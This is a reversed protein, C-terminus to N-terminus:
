AEDVITEAAEQLARRRRDYDARLAAVQVRLDHVSTQNRLQAAVAHLIALGVTLSIATVLLLANSGLDAVLAVDVCSGARNLV